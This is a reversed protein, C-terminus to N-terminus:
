LSDYKEKYSFDKFYKGPCYHYIKFKESESKKHIM